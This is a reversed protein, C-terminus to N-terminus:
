VDNATRFFDRVLGAADSELVGGVVEPRHTLRRDRVVDWLSGVAGTKPEWAGFVLGDVRSLVAAGACMTCPELTVVLTCGTLRWGDGHREAAARLALVEAHATPDGRRERENVASAIEDGAANVVVAGVPVDGAPTTRAVELARRM